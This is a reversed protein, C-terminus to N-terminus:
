DDEREHDLVEFPSGEEDGICLCKGEGMSSNVEGESEDADTDLPRLTHRVTSDRLFIRSSCGSGTFVLPLAGISPACDREVGKGRREGGTVGTDLVDLVVVDIDRRRVFPVWEVDM